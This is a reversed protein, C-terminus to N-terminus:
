LSTGVEPFGNDQLIKIAEDFNMRLVHSSGNPLWRFPEFPYQKGIAELDSAAVVCLPVVLEFHAGLHAALMDQPLMASCGLALPPDSHKYQLM